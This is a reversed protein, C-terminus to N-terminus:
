DFWKIFLLIGTQLRFHAFVLFFCVAHEHPDAFVRVGSVAPPVSGM